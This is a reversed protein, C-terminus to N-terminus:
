AADLEARMRVMDLGGEWRAVVMTAVANGILSTFTLAESMLRHIGIVLAISEVPITGASSLTAAMTVFAAGAVGASGKSTLLSVLVLGIQQPLGFPTNTAQALFVAATSIYLCTGELNFSYGTPIVLGVVSEACGLKVLKRMLQPLVSETTTTAAVILIEERFYRLFKWLGFGAMRCAAGLCLVVFLGCTVYFCLILKGLGVLSGAGFKSVTFALAGFAGIPAVRMVIGIMRLFARNLSDILANIPAAHAGMAPLVSAFLVSIFLVALLHGEAFAGVLTKPVIDVLFEVMGHQHAVTVYNKVSAANLTHVDVNMGVGPQWLNIPILGVILALTTMVEFYILAKLAVRGVVRMEGIGTIGHVVTCFIVPAIMMRIMRIFVDGFPQMDAGIDPAYIGLLIGLVMGVFVQFSLDAYLPKRPRKQAGTEIDNM